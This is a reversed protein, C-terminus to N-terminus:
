ASLRGDTRSLSALRRHYLLQRDAPPIRTGLAVDWVGNSLGFAIETGRPSHHYLHHRRIYEFYRGHFSHFHVAYHVWEEIVYSQLLAAVLVPATPLPALYSTLALPVAFPLTDLFGNIHMGDWPRLHHESHLRDFRLHLLHKLLGPGDPFRGHLVFRHVLYEVSTWLAIGFLVSLLATLPNARFGLPLIVLAYASYLITVPYFLRRATRAEKALDIGPPYFPGPIGFLSKPIGGTTTAM